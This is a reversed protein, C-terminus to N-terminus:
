AETYYTHTWSGSGQYGSAFSAISIESTGYIPDRVELMGTADNLCGCIMVFHGGGGTWGIRAGVPRGAALEARIRSLPAAGSARRALNGTRTLARDLYWPRNCRARSGTQCCGTEGLEANVVTCQTWGSAADYFHSVSTSCAAWCWQSQLQDQVVLASRRWRPKPTKELLDGLDRLWAALWPGAGRPGRPRPPSSPPRSAPGPHLQIRSRDLVTSM